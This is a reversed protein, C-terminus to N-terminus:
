GETILQHLRKAEAKSERYLNLNFEQVPMGDAVWGAILDAQFGAERLHSQMEHKLRVKAAHSLPKPQPPMNDM